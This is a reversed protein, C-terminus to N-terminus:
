HSRHGSKRNEEEIAKAEADLRAQMARERLAENNADDWTKADSDQKGTSQEWWVMRDHVAAHQQELSHAKLHAQTAKANGDTASSMMQAHMDATQRLSQAETYYQKIQHRQQGIHGRLEDAESGTPGVTEIEIPEPKPAEPIGTAGTAAGTAAPSAPKQESWADLPSVVPGDGFDSMAPRRTPDGQVWEEPVTGDLGMAEWAMATAGGQPLDLRSEAEQAEAEHRRQDAVTKERLKRAAEQRREAATASRAAEQLHHGTTDAHEEAHEAMGAAVPLAVKPAVANLNPVVLNGLTGAYLMDTNHEFIDGPVPEDDVDDDDAAGTMGTGSQPQGDSSGGTAVMALRALRLPMGGEGEGSAVPGAGLGENGSQLPQAGMALRLHEMAAATLQAQSGLQLLSFNDGGMMSAMGSGISLLDAIGLPKHEEAHKEAHVEMAANMFAQTSRARVLRFMEEAEKAEGAAERMEQMAASVRLKQELLAQLKVAVSLQGDHLSHLTNYARTARAEALAQKGLHEEEELTPATENMLVRSVAVRATEAQHIESSRLFMQQKVFDKRATMVKLLPSAKALVYEQVREDVAGGTAFPTAEHEGGTPSELLDPVWQGVPAPMEAAMEATMQVSAAAAASEAAAATGVGLDEMSVGASALPGLARAAAIDLQKLHREDRSV